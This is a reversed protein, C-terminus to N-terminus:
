LIFFASENFPFELATFDPAFVDDPTTGLKRHQPALLTAHVLRNIIAEQRIGGGVHTAWWAARETRQGGHLVLGKM